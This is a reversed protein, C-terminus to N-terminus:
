VRNAVIKGQGDYTQWNKEGFRPQGADIQAQIKRHALDLYALQGPDRGLLHQYCWADCAVPDVSAIIAPRNLEGGPRVDSSRGGTPGNRLMVRTGDAIVLTPSFLAALDSVVEHIAQHFQNRRGGLLGYWNKLNMSASCLNHDKIPAIGILKTAERLPQALVPWRDPIGAAADAKASHSPRSQSAPEHIPIAEFRNEAPLIITAGEAYAVETIRSKAFCAEPAEIPNDAILIRRAGAERCLRIVWCLVEPNTTAGLHPPRDFGVNPKILVVDGPSVFRRLGPYGPDGTRSRPDLGGIAARVLREIQAAASQATQSAGSEGGIAVSIRPDGSPFEIGAFFNRLPPIGPDTSSKQRDPLGADGTPDYLLYGAATAAGAALVAGAGRTLCERRTIPEDPM